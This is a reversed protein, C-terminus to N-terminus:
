APRDYVLQVSYLTTNNIGSTILLSVFQGDATLTYGGSDLTILKYGNTPFTLTTTASLPGSAVAETQEYLSVAGDTVSAGRVKVSKLRDGKKLGKLPIRYSSSLSGDLVTTIANSAEGFTVTGAVQLGGLIDITLTRDGHKYDAAEVDGDVEVDGTVLVGGDIAVNGVATLIPAFGPVTRELTLAGDISHDGELEGDSLYLAWLYTLNKWWNEYSSVGMSNLAHGSAKLGSSPEIRNTGDTNWTPVNAPKSSM